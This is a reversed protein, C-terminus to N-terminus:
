AARSTLDCVHVVELGHVWAFAMAEKETMLEGTDFVLECRVVAPALRHEACLRLGAAVTSQSWGDEYARIAVMHGPRTFDDETSSPAALLRATHARDAASIGTTVGEAADVSIATVPEGMSRGGHWTLAPLQLENCRQAPLATTVFGCTHRVIFAMVDSSVLQGAVVLEPGGRQPDAGLLVVPGGDAFNTAAHIRTM